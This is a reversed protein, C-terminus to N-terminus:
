LMLNLIGIFLHVLIQAHLLTDKSRPTAQNKNKLVIMECLSSTGNTQM